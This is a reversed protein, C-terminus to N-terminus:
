KAAKRGWGYLFFNTTQKITMDIDYTKFQGALNDPLYYAKVIQFERGDNLRRLITAYDSALLESAGERRALTEALDRTMDKATSSLEPLSDVFFIKGGPKLAGAVTGIFEYLMAPPVHSLWFGMFIADYAVVPQWYFIDTLTYTVRESQIKQRNIELMEASSDLATVYDATKVLEQTWIGTGAAMELVQGTLNAEQLARRLEDAEAQWQRAHEPGRDYRGQRYFWEDYERARAEYYIKQEELIKQLMDSM